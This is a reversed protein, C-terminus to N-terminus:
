VYCSSMPVLGRLLFCSCDYTISCMNGLLVLWPTTPQITLVVNSASIASHSVQTDALLPTCHREWISFVCPFVYTIDRYVTGSVTIPLYCTALCGGVAGCRLTPPLVPFKTLAAGLAGLSGGFVSGVGFDRVLSGEAIAARRAAVEEM